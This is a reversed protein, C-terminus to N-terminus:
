ELGIFGNFSQPVCVRELMLNTIEGRWGSPTERAQPLESNLAGTKSCWLNGCRKRSNGTYNKNESKGSFNAKMKNYMDVSKSEIIYGTYDDQMKKTEAKAIVVINNNIYDYSNMTMSLCLVVAIKSFMRIRM